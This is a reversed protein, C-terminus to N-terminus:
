RSATVVLVAMVARRMQESQVKGEEAVVLAISQSPTQYAMVVAQAKVRSAVEAWQRPRALTGRGVAGAAVMRDVTVTGGVVVVVLSLRQASRPAQVTGTLQAALVLLSM